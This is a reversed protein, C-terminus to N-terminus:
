VSLTAKDRLSSGACRLVHALMAEEAAHAQEMATM